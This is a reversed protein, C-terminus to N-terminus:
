VRHLDEVTTQHGWCRACTKLRYNCIWNETKADECRYRVEVLAHQEWYKRCTKLRYWVGDETKSHLYHVLEDIKLRRTFCLFWSACANRWLFLAACANCDQKTPRAEKTKLDQLRRTKRRRNKLQKKGPAQMWAGARTRTWIMQYPAKRSDERKGTKLDEKENAKGANLPGDHTCTKWHELRWTKRNEPRGTKMKKPGTQWIQCKQKQKIDEFRRKRWNKWHTKTKSTHRLTKM